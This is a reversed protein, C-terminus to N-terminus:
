AALAERREKIIKLVDRTSQIPENKLIADNLRNRNELDLFYGDGYSSRIEIGFPELKKRIWYINISALKSSPPKGLLANLKTSSCWGHSSRLCSLVEKEKPHLNFKVPYVNPAVFLEMLYKNMALAEDREARLAAIERLLADSM